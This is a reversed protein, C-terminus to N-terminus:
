ILKKFKYDEAGLSILSHETCHQQGALNNVQGSCTICKLFAFTFMAATNGKCLRVPHWTIGLTLIQPDHM